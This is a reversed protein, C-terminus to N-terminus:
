LGRLRTFPTLDLETVIRGLAPNFLAIRGVFFTKKAIM